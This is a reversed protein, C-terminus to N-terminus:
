QQAWRHQQAHQEALGHWGQAARKLDFRDGLLRTTWRSRGAPPPSRATQVAYCRGTTCEATACCEDLSSPAPCSTTEEM